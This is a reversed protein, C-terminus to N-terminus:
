ALAFRATVEKSGTMTLTCTPAASCGSAGYWGSFSSGTAPDATLTVTSGNPYSVAPCTVESQTGTCDVGAPSSTVRGSSTRDSYCTTPFLTSGCEYASVRHENLISVTLTTTACKLHIEAGSAVSDISVAVRGEDRTGVRCPTGTLSEIDALADGPPGVPGTAGAPGVPGTVGVPGAPGAPGTAGAAGPPGIQNWQLPVELLVPSKVLIPNGSTICQKADDVVRLVGTAKNYCGHITGAGDPISAFAISGAAAALGTFAALGVAFGRRSHRFRHSIRSESM